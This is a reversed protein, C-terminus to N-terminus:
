RGRCRRRRRRRRFAAVVARGVQLVQEDAAGVLPQHADDAAIMLPMVIALRCRSALMLRISGCAHVHVSRARRGSFARDGHGSIEEFVRVVLVVHDHDAAAQGPQRGGVHQGPGPM